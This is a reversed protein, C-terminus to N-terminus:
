TKLYTYGWWEQSRCQISTFLWSWVEGGKGGSFDSGTGVPYSAQQGLAPRSAMSFLLFKGRRSHFAHQINQSSATSLPLHHHTLLYILKEPVSDSNLNRFSHFLPLFCKRCSYNNAIMVDSPILTGLMHCWRFRNTSQRLGTFAHFIAYLKRM